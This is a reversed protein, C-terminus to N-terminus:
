TGTPCSRPAMVATNPPRLPRLPPVMRSHSLSAGPVQEKLPKLDRLREELQRAESRAAQLQSLTDLKEQAATRIETAKDALLANAKSLEAQM